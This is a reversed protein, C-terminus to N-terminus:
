SSRSRGALDPTHGHARREPTFVRFHEALGPLNPRWARADVGAGGPHLLGLPNGDGHVEYWTGLGCREVSDTM